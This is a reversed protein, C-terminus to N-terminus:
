DSDPQEDLMNLFGAIVVALVVIEILVAAAVAWPSRVVMMLSILVGMFVVPASFGYLLRADVGLRREIAGDLHSLSSRPHTILETM